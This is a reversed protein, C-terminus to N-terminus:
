RSSVVSRRRSENAVHKKKESRSVSVLHFSLDRQNVTYITDSKEFTCDPPITTKMGSEPLVVM